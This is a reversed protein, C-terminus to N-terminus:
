HFVRSLSHMDYEIISTVLFAPNNGTQSLFQSGLKMVYRRIARIQVQYFAKPFM